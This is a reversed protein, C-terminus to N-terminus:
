ISVYNFTTWRLWRTSCAVVWHLHLASIFWLKLNVAHQILKQRHVPVLCMQVLLGFEHFNIVINQFSFVGRSNILMNFWLSILFLIYLCYWAIYLYTRLQPTAYIRDFITSERPFWGIGTLSASNYIFCMIRLGFLLSVLVRLSIYLLIDYM